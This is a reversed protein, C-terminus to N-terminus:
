KTSLYEVVKPVGILMKLARLHTKAERVVDQSSLNGLLPTEDALQVHTDEDTSGQAPHTRTMTYGQNSSPQYVCHILYTSWLLM